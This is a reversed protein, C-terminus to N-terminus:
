FGYLKQAMVTGSGPRGFSGGPISNLRREFDIELIANGIVADSPELRWWGM